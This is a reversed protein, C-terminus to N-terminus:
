NLLTPNELFNKIENIFQAALVGDGIRHDLSLTMNMMDRVVVQNMDDVVPQKRITSVALIATEPPNIIATFSDVQYMGLNSITFRSPQSSTMRGDRAAQIAIKTTESIEVLTLQDAHDLVAVLLGLPTSVAMGLNIDEWQVWRGDDLISTNIQPFQMLVLACARIIMDNYTISDNAARFRFAETMDVSATVFIHPASQWSRQLRQATALKVKGPEIVRGNEISISTQPVEVRKAQGSVTRMVDETTIKGGPGSPKIDALSIGHDQALKRAKPSIIVGEQMVTSPKTIPKSVIESSESHQIQKEAGREELLLTEGAEGVYGIPSLVAAEEGVNVLIKLLIGDQSAAVEFTAKETEVECITEGKKVPDGEKKWWSVVTGTALDQGGQPMIIQVAM